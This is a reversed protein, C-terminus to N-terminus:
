FSADGETNAPFLPNEGASIPSLPVIGIANVGVPSNMNPSSLTPSSSGNQWGTQDGSTLTRNPVGETM